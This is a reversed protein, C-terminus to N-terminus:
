SFLVYLVPGVSGVYYLLSLHDSSLGKLYFLLNSGIIAGVSWTGLRMVGVLIVLGIGREKLTYILFFVFKKIIIYKKIPIYWIWNNLDILTNIIFM